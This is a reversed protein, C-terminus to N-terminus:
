QSIHSIYPWRGLCMNNYLLEVYVNNRLLLNYNIYM